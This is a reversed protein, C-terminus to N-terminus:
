LYDSATTHRHNTSHTHVGLALLLYSCLKHQQNGKATFCFNTSKSLLTQIAYPYTSALYNNCNFSYGHVGQIYTHKM